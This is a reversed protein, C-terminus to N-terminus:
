SQSAHGRTVAQSRNSALRDDDRARPPAVTPGRTTITPIAITVWYYNIYFRLQPPTAVTSWPHGLLLLTSPVVTSWPVGASTTTYKLLGLDRACSHLLAFLEWRTNCQIEIKCVQVNEAKHLTCSPCRCRSQQKRHLLRPPMWSLHPM